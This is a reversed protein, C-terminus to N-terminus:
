VLQSCDEKVLLLKSLGLALVTLATTLESEGKNLPLKLILRLHLRGASAIRV